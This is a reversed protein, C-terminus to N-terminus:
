LSSPKVDQSHVGPCARWRVQWCGCGGERPSSASGAAGQNWDSWSSTPASTDKRDHSFFHCITGPIIRIKLTNPCPLRHLLTNPEFCPSLLESPMSSLILTSLLFSGFKSSEIGNSFFSSEFLYCCDCRLCAHRNRILFGNWNELPNSDRLLFTGAGIWDIFISITAYVYWAINRSSLVRLPIYGCSSIVTDHGLVQSCIQPHSHADLFQHSQFSCFHNQLLHNQQRKTHNQLICPEQSRTSVYNCSKKQNKNLRLWGRNVRSLFVVM